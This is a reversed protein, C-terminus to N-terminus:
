DGIPLGCLRARDIVVEFVRATAADIMVGDLSAAGRGEMEAERVAGSVAAAQAIETPTPAFVENALPVQSPHICWKGVAGLSAAWAAERRYGDVNRFNAYPGDIADIGHARAAVIM